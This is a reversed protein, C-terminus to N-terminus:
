AIYGSGLPSAPHTLHGERLHRCPQEPSPGMGVRWGWLGRQLSLDSTSPIHPRTGGGGGGAAQPDGRGASPVGSAAPAAGTGRMRVDPARQPQGLGRCRREGMGPGRETGARSVKFGPPGRTDGSGLCLLLIGLLCGLALLLLVAAVRRAM